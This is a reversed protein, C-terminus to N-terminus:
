NKSPNTAANQKAHIAQVSTLGVVEKREDLISVTYEGAHPVVFNNFTILLNSKGTFGTKVELSVPPFADKKDEDQVTVTVAYNTNASGILVAVLFARALGGPFEAVNMENFMGIISGRNSQDVMAYECLTILETQLQQQKM